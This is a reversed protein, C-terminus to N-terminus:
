EGKAAHLRLTELFSMTVLSAQPMAAHIRALGEARHALPNEVFGAALPKFFDDDHMPVVVRPSLAENVREFYRPTSTWGTLCILALDAKRDKLASEVIQASGTHFITRGRWHILFAFVPGNHFDLFGMPWSVKAPVDGGALWQTPMDSHRNEVAEVEMDGVKVTMGPRLVRQQSTPLGAATAVRQAQDSAYLPCNLEHAVEPADLFHDFHAHGAFVANAPRLLAHIKALDPKAPGTLLEWLPRRSFYPDILIAARASRIEFGAVGLWRVDLEDPRPPHLGDTPSLWDPPTMVTTRHPAHPGQNTLYAQPAPSQNQGPTGAGATFALTLTLAGMMGALIAKM